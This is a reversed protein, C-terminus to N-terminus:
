HSQLNWTDVSVKKKKLMTKLLEQKWGGTASLRSVEHARSSTKGESVSEASKQQLKEEM